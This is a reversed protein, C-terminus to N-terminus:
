GAEPAPGTNFGWFHSGRAAVQPMLMMAAIFVGLALGTLLLGQLEPWVVASLTVAMIVAAPLVIGLLGRWLGMMTTTRVGIIVIAVGASLIVAQLLSM